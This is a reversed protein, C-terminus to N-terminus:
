AGSNAFFVKDFGTMTCLKEALATQVPNYYLNSTHQLKAVQQSVAQVWKEDCYGLSNVGIGSGFDIYSKGNSDFATAGKGGVLTVDFRSYTPMMNENEQKKIEPFTM